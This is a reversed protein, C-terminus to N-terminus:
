RKALSPGLGCVHNRSCKVICIRMNLVDDNRWRVPSLFATLSIANALPFREEFLSKLSYWYLTSWGSVDKDGMSRRMRSPGLAMAIVKTMSV